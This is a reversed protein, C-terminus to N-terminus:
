EVARVEQKFRQASKRALALTKKKYHTINKALEDKLLDIATYIEEAEQRAGFNKGPTHISVEVYFIKGHNHHNSTKGLRANFTIADQSHNFYKHLCSMKDGLYSRIAETLDFDKCFVTLNKM